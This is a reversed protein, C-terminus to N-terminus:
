PCAVPATDVVLDDFWVDLPGTMPHFSLAGLYLREFDPGYWPTMAPANLCGDGTTDVAFSPVDRGDIGLRYRIGDADAEFAVCTWADGPPAVPIPEDSHHWCDQATQNDYFVAMFKGDDAASYLYTTTHGAAPSGAPVVGSAGAITWHVSSAASQNWMMFRGYLHRQTPAFLAGGEAWIRGGGRQGGDVHAHLSHGGSYARTTDIALSGSDGVEARLDGLRAGDALAGAALDDFTVCLPRASCDLGAAADGTAGDTTGAAGDAGPGADGSGPSGSDCAALGLSVVVVISRM